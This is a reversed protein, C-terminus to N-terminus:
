NIEVFRSNCRYSKTTKKIIEPSTNDPINVNINLMDYEVDMSVKNYTSALVKSTRNM